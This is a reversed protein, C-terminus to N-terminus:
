RVVLSRRFRHALHRNLNISFQQVFDRLREINDLKLSGKPEKGHAIANRQENLVQLRMRIKKADTRQWTVQDIVNVIGIRIFLREINAANPNGWNGISSRYKELDDDSLHMLLYSSLTFFVEEIYGQLLASLILVCSKNLALTETTGIEKWQSRRAAILENLPALNIEPLEIRQVM